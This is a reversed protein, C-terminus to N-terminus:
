KEGLQADPSETLYVYAADDPVGMLAHFEAANFTYPTSHRPSCNKKHFIGMGIEFRVNSDHDLNWMSSAHKAM